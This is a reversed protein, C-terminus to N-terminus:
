QISLCHCSHCQSSVLFRTMTAGNGHKRCTAHLCSLFKPFNRNSSAFNARSTSRHAVRRRINGGQLKEASISSIRSQQPIASTNHLTCTAFATRGAVSCKRVTHRLLLTTTPLLSPNKCLRQLLTPARKKLVCPICHHVRKCLREISCTCIWGYVGDQAGHAQTPPKM